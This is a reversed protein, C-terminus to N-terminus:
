GGRGESSVAEVQGGVGDLNIPTPLSPHRRFVPSPSSPSWRVPCCQSGQATGGKLDLGAERKRAQPKGALGLSARPDVGLSNTSGPPLPWGSNLGLRSGRGGGPPRPGLHPGRAELEGPSWSKTQGSGGGRWGLRGSLNFIYLRSGPSRLLPCAPGGRRRGVAMGVAEKKSGSNWAAQRGGLCQPRQEKTLLPSPSFASSLPRPKVEVEGKGGGM